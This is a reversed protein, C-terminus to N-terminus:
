ARKLLEDGNRSVEVDEFLLGLQRDEELQLRIPRGREPVIRLKQIDVVTAPRPAEAKPRRTRVRAEGTLEVAWRTLVDRMEKVYGYRNYIATVTGDSHGLVRRIMQEGGIGLQEAIRTAVTRRLDHPSWHVLVRDGSVACFAKMMRAQAKTWGALPLEGGTGSFIYEGRPRPHDAYVTKLIDLAHSVLPIVHVHDSKYASAPIVALSQKFDIWPRKARSWEGPRCGTLLILQYVPGFPYGLEAAANWVVRAEDLSLVRDKRNKAPLYSLLGAVPNDHRKLLGETIGWSFMKRLVSLTSRAAETGGRPRSYPGVGRKTRVMLQKMLNRVQDRTLTDALHGGIRPIIHVTMAGTIRYQARLHKVQVYDELFRQCLAEITFGGATAAAELAVVPSVGRKAQDLYTNALSRAAEISMAPYEGLTIRVKDGAKQRGRATVGGQGVVRLRMSWTAAGPGVRIMLGSVTGDLIDKRKSKSRSILIQLTADTLKPM